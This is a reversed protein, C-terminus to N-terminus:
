KSTRLRWPGSPPQCSRATKRMEGNEEPPVSVPGRIPEGRAAPHSQAVARPCTARTPPPTISACREYVTKRDVRLWGARSTTLAVAEGRTARRPDRLRSWPGGGRMRSTKSVKCKSLASKKGRIRTDREDDLPERRRPRSSWEHRRNM